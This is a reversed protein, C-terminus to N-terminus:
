EVPDAKANSAVAKKERQRLLVRDFVVQLASLLKHRVPRENVDPKVYADYESKSCEEVIVRFAHGEKILKWDIGGTTAALDIYTTAELLKLIQEPKHQGAILEKPMVEAKPRESVAPGPIARVNFLRGPGQTKSVRKPRRSNKPHPNKRRLKRSM